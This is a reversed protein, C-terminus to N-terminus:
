SESGLVDDVAEGDGLHADLLVGDGALGGVDVEGGFDGAVVGDEAGLDAAEAVVAHQGGEADERGGVEVDPQVVCSAVLDSGWGHIGSGNGGIRTGWEHRAKQAMLPDACRQAAGGAVAGDAEAVEEDREDGYEDAGEEREDHAGVERPGVPLEREM